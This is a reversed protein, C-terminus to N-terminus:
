FTTRGQMLNFLAEFMKKVTSGYQTELQELVSDIKKKGQMEADAISGSSSLLAIAKEVAPSDIGERQAQEFHATLAAADEPHKEIHLIVPLSKKGEVIDDGRKKGANGTSINKVDDLIQFGVGAGAFLAAFVKSEEHKKGAARMGTYAALAALAGTKLRIMREYDQQSPFFGVTRHWHIDLAQGEHLARIQTLATAYLDLKISAPAQYDELSQLARFYLWSGSNLASDLGYAVHAAPQGRRLESNDEIDDHILSATHIGEILPTLTYIDESNGGALQYALVALLPRWRKGGGSVLSACPASLLAIPNQEAASEPADPLFAIHLAREIKELRQKFEDNM